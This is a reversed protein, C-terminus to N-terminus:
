SEIELQARLRLVQEKRIEASIKGWPLGWKEACIPGYGASRSELTTLERGCFCCNGVRIGELALAIKPNSELEDLISEFEDFAYFKRTIEGDSTLLLVPSHRGLYVWIRYTGSIVLGKYRIKPFKLSESGKRLVSAINKYSDM